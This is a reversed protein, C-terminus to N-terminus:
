LGLTPLVKHSRMLDQKLLLQKEDLITSVTGAQTSHNQFSHVVVM